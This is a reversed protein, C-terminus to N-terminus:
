QIMTRLVAAYFNLDSIIFSPIINYASLPSKGNFALFIQYTFLAMPGFAYLKGM